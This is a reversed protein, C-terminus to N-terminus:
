SYAAGALFDIAAQAASPTLEHAVGPFTVLEVTVGFARLARTVAKARELRTGGLLADYQSPVTLPDDDDEGVGLWFRVERLGEADPPQGFWREFDATGLPLSLPLSAGSEGLELSPQPLTYAGGAFAAVAEVERPFFVAFREALSAGRSFGFLLVRAQPSDAERRGGAAIIRRLDGAFAIDDLQTDAPDALDGYAFTPAVLLWGLADVLPVLPQAFDRGREGFGHLAVLLPADIAADSPAHIFYEPLPPAPGM